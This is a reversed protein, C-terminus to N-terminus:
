RKLETSTQLSQGQLYEPHQTTIFGPSPLQKSQPEPLVALGAQIREKLKEVM